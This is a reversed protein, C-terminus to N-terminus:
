NWFGDHVALSEKPLHPGSVEVQHDDRAFVERSTLLPQVRAPNHPFLADFQESSLGFVVHRVNGLSIAGACMVCPETSTYLTCRELFDPDFRESAARILNTEAHATVDRDTVVSNEAELVVNGDADVLVAGFPQNGHERAQVALELARRLHRRQGDSM